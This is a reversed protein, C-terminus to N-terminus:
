IFWGNAESRESLQWMRYNRRRTGQGGGKGNAAWVCCLLGGMCSCEVDKNCAYLVVWGAWVLVMETLEEDPALM